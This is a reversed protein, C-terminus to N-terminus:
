PDRAGPDSAAGKRCYRMIRVRGKVSSGVPPKVALHAPDGAGCADRLHHYALNPPIKESIAATGARRCGDGRKPYTGEVAWKGNEKKDRKM